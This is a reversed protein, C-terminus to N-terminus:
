VQIFDNPTRTLFEVDTDTVLLTDSHQLGGWEPVRLNPEFTFLMGPELVVDTKGDLSPAEHAGLGMGHGIRGPLYRLLGQAEYGARAEEFLAAVPTGPRLLPRVRERIKLISEYGHLREPPLQGVAVSRENEAHTGNCNTWIFVTAIEGEAPKRLTPNDCNILVREGTLCWCWLGNQAGGELSGFDCVEIDPFDKLWCQNMAAMADISVERESARARLAEIAAAMGADAIKAAIRADAIEQADKILRAKQVLASADAFTAHPALAQLQRVRSLPLFDDEIGLTGRDVGLEALISGLAEQWNPGMTIKTSWAGYLRITKVWASARAHDDRLAHVLLVPEGELPLIAIVPHSYIIPNFGSLYFSSEPKLCILADIGRARMSDRLRQTRTGYPSATTM